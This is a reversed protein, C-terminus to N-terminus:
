PATRRIRAAASSAPSARATAVAGVAALGAGGAAGLAVGRLGAGAVPLRASASLSAFLSVRWVTRAPSVSPPIALRASTGRMRIM